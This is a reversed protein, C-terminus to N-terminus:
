ENLIILGSTIWMIMLCTQFIPVVEVQDYYKMALNLLHVQLSSSLVLMVVLFLMMFWHNKASGSQILEGFLKLMVVSLSSQMSSAWVLFIMPWKIFRKITASAPSVKELVEKDLDNIIDILVRAPREVENINDVILPDELQSATRESEKLDCPPLIQVMRPTVGLDGFQMVQQGQGQSQYEEADSEFIRLKAIFRKLM